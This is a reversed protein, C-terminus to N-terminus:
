ISFFQSIIKRLVIGHWNCQKLHRRSLLKTRSLFRFLYLHSFLFELYITNTNTSLCDIVTWYLGYGYGQFFLFLLLFFVRLLLLHLIGHRKDERTLSLLVFLCWQRSISLCSKRSWIEGEIIVYWIFLRVISFKNKFSIETWWAKQNVSWDLFLVIVWKHARVCVYWFSLTHIDKKEKGKNPLVVLM